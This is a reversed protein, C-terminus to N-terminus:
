NLNSQDVNRFGNPQRQLNFINADLNTSGFELKMMNNRCNIFANSVTLFPHGLMVPVHSDANPVRETDVLVFDVFFFFEGVKILVDDM